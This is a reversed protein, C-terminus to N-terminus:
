GPARFFYDFRLRKDIEQGFSKSVAFCIQTPFYPQGNGDFGRYYLPSYGRRDRPLGPNSEGNPLFNIKPWAHSVLCFVLFFFGIRKRSITETIIRFKLSKWCFVKGMIKQVFENVCKSNLINILRKRTRLRVLKQVNEKLRSNRSRM